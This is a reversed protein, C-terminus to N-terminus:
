ANLLTKLETLLQEFPKNRRWILEAIRYEMNTQFKHNERGRMVFSCVRKFEQYDERETAQCNKRKVLPKPVVYIQNDYAYFSMSIEFFKRTYSSQPNREYIKVLEERQQKYLFKRFFKYFHTICSLGLGTLMSAKPSSIDACFCKMILEIMEESHYQFSLPLKLLPKEARCEKLYFYADDRFALQKQSIFEELVPKLVSYDTESITSLEELTFKNLRKCTKLLKERV